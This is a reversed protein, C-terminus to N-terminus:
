CNYALCNTWIASDTASKTDFPTASPWFADAADLISRGIVTPETGFARCQVFGQMSGIAQQHRHPSAASLFIKSRRIPRLNQAIHRLAQAIDQVSESRVRNRKVATPLEVRLRSIQRAFQEFSIEARIVGIRVTPQAHGSGYGPIAGTQAAIARRTAVLINIVGVDDEDNAAIHGLAMRYGEISNASGPFASRVQRQNNHIRTAGGGGPFGVDIQGHSGAAVDSQEIGQAPQEQFGTRHVFRKHPLVGAAKLFIPGKQQPLVQALQACHGANLFLPKAVSRCPDGSRVSEQTEVAHTQVLARDAHPLIVAQDIQVQEGALNAFRSGPGKERV